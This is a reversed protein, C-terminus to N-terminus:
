KGLVRHYVKETEEATKKWTFLKMRQYGEEKLRCLRQRNMVAEHIVNSIAGSDNPDFYLAAEGAM